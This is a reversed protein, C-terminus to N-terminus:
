NLVHTRRYVELKARERQLQIRIPDADDAVTGGKALQEELSKILAPSEEINKIDEGKIAYEAIVNLKGNLVNFIGSSVALWYDKGNHVYKLAGSGLLGVFNEHDPLVGVEGDHAPLLITTVNGDFLKSTPLSISLPFSAAAM